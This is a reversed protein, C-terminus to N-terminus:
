LEDRAVDGEDADALRQRRREREGRGAPLCEHEDLRLHLGSASLRRLAPYPIRLHPPADHAFHGLRRERPSARGGPDYVGPQGTRLPVPLHEEVEDLTLMWLEWGVEVLPDPGRDGLATRRAATTVWPLGCVMPGASSRSRFTEAADPTSSTNPSSSASFCPTVGDLSSRREASRTTTSPPSPVISRASWPKRSVPTGTSPTFKPRTPNRAEVPGSSSSVARPRTKAPSYRTISSGVSSTSASPRPAVASFSTTTSLEIRPRM